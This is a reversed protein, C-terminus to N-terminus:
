RPHEVEATGYGAVVLAGHFVLVETRAAGDQTTYGIVLVDAGAYVKTIEFRLRPNLELAANWYERIADKGSIAGEVGRGMRKAIPSSFVADESFHSLVTEVDRANWASAWDQAFSFPQIQM